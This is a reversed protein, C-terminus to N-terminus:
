INEVTAESIPMGFLGGMIQAVRNEPILNHVNLYSVIAKTRSGYQVPAKFVENKQTKVKKRCCPCYKIEFQHEAVFPKKTEPIDFVHRKCIDVVPVDTLDTNCYPCNTTKYYEISDPNEVQELTSGKHGPQGGSKKSSKERLSQVRASKKLGDSSPPKGSNNSDLGLRRKLEAIYETLTVIQENLKVILENQKEITVQQKEIIQELIKIKEDRWDVGLEERLM